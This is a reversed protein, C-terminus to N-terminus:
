DEVELISGPSCENYMIYQVRVSKEGDLCCDDILILGYIEKM